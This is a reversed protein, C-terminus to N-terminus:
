IISKKLQEVYELIETDARESAIALDLVKLFLREESENDIFFSKPYETLTTDFKCLKLDEIDEFGLKCEEEVIDLTFGRDVLDLTYDRDVTDTGLYETAEIQGELQENDRDM